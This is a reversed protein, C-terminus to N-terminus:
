PGKDGEKRKGELYTLRYDGVGTIRHRNYFPILVYFRPGNSFHRGRGRNGAGQSNFKGLFM